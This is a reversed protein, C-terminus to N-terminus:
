RRRRRRAVVVIGAITLVAAIGTTAGRSTTGEGLACLGGSAAGPNNPDDNRYVDYFSKTAMATAYFVDPPSANGSIDISVVSIGYTIGNQLIKVRFSQTTPSLLPSCAFRPDLGSVGGDNDGNGVGADSGPMACEMFGAGFTGDNFVQLSGARNCLVQYGLLDTYVSSDVKPWNIVVAENGGEVVVNGLSSPAPPPTLDINVQSTALAMPAGTSSPSIVFITQNFAQNTPSTCDPNPIFGLGTTGGDIFTAQTYTSMVRADTPITVRGDNLFTAMPESLLLQCRSTRLGDNSDCQSGVWFEIQGTRDVTLVKQFGTSTLAVYVFVQETCDCHAKNFFRARDFDSLNAGSEHQVGIFFDSTGLTTGTTTGADLQAVAPAAALLPVAVVTALLPLRFLPRM